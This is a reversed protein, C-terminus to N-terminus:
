WAIEMKTKTLEEGGGTGEKAMKICLQCSINVFDRRRKNSFGHTETRECNRSELSCRNPEGDRGSLM